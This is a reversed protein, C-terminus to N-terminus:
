KAIITMTCEEPYFSVIESALLPKKYTVNIPLTVNAKKQNKMITDLKLTSVDVSVDIYEDFVDQNNEGKMYVTVTEGEAFSFDYNKPNNTIVVPLAINFFVGSKGVYVIVRVTDQKFEIGEALNKKLSADIQVDSVAGEILIEETSISTINNIISKAGMVQILTPRIRVGGVSFGEAVTGTTVPVVRIMKSSKGEVLIEVNNQKPTVNLADPIETKILRIPYMTMADVKPNKMDVVAKLNSAKVYQLLENKGRVLVSIHKTAVDSIVMNSPLNEFAIPIRFQQESADNGSLYAWLVFALLLSALRALINKGKLVEKLKNILRRM